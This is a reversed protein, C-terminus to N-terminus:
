LFPFLLEKYNNQLIRKFPDVCLGNEKKAVYVMRSTMVFGFLEQLKDFIEVIDNWTVESPCHKSLLCERTELSPMTM